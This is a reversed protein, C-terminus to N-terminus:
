KLHCGFCLDQYSDRSGIVLGQGDGPAYPDHCTCCGMKGDFLKIRPDLENESVLDKHDLTARYYEMGIPHSLGIGEKAHRWMGAGLSTRQSPITDDHCDMCALSVNDLGTSPDLVEFKAFGHGLDMAPRHSVGEAAGTNFPELSALRIQRLSEENKHCSLCFFKGAPERRLFYTREGTLPNKYPKHVDHCTICTIKGEEDLPMDAPVTISDSPKMDVQHSVSKSMDHCRSCLKTISDTFRLPERSTDGERPLTFHCMFCDNDTFAHPANEGEDFGIAIAAALLMCATTIIIIIRM